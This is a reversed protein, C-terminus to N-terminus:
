LYARLSFLPIDRVRNKSRPVLLPQPILTMGRGSEVGPFSATGMTCSAPHTGPGTQFLALFSAEVPNRDGSRGTRLWDSYLSLYGPGCQRSINEYFVNKSPVSFNSTVKTSNLSLTWLKGNKRDYIQVVHLYM